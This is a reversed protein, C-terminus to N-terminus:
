ATYIQCREPVHREYYYNDPMDRIGATILHNEFAIKLMNRFRASILNNYNPSYPPLPIPQFVFTFSCFVPFSCFCLPPLLPIFVCTSLLFLIVPYFFLLRRMVFTFFLFLHFLFACHPGGLTCPLPLTRGIVPWSPGSPSYLYLGVREHGRRKTPPPHDAGRGSLKVGPISGTGM